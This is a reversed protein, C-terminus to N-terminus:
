DHLRAQLEQTPQFLEVTIGDPDKCYAFVIGALAGGSEDIATPPGIFEVGQGVMQEYSAFIDEVHIAIHSAGIDCPRLSFPRGAPNDYHILEIFTNGVPLFAVTLIADPVGIAESVDEGSLKDLVFTPELGFSDRYFRLTRELNSVTVGVHQVGFIGTM